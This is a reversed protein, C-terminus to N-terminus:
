HSAKLMCGGKVTIPKNLKQGRQKSCPYTCLPIWNEWSGTGFSRSEIVSLNLDILHIHGVYPSALTSVGSFKSQVLALWHIAKSRPHYDWDYRKRPQKLGLQVMAIGQMGILNWILFFDRSGLSTGWSGLLLLNALLLSRRYKSFWVTFWCMLKVDM